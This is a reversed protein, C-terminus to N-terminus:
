FEGMENGTQNTVKTPTQIIRQTPRVVTQVVQRVGTTSQTQIAPKESTLVTRVIGGQNTITQTAQSGPVVVRRIVKRVVPQSPAVELSQGPLSGNVM